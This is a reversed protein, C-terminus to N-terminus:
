EDYYGGEVKRMAAMVALISVGIGLVACLFDLLFIGTSPYGVCVPGWMGALGVLVIAGYGLLVNGYLAVGYRSLFTGLASIWYCLLILYLVLGIEQAKGGRSIFDTVLEPVGELGQKTQLIFFYSIVTVLLATFFKRLLDLSLANRMVAMGRGSSKLYDINETDKAQLGGFLWNDSLIEAATLLPLMLLLGVDGIHAGAWAAIAALAAPMVLCMAIRYWLSTFVLYGRLRKEFSGFM